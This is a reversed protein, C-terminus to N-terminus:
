VVSKRDEDNLAYWELNATGDGQFYMLRFPYIGAQPVYILFPSNALGRETGAPALADFFSLTVRSDPDLPDAGSQILYGDEENPFGTWDTNVAMTYMGPEPFELAGVIETAFSEIPSGFQANGPIGPFNSTVFDPDYFYGNQATPDTDFNIVGPWTFYGDSDVGGADDLNAANPGYDGALVAENYAITGEWAGADIQYTRIKFGKKTADVASKPMAADAPLNAFRAVVFSTANTYSAGENDEIVLSLTNTSGSPLPPNPVDYSIMTTEGSRAVATPTVSAGNFSLAISNTDALAGGVETVGVSFGFPSVSPNGITLGAEGEPPISQSDLEEPTLAGSHVKLRDLSGLFQLNGNWEAGISFLTQTRTFTLGGSYPLADGLVGDVYFSLQELPAEYVVAIHHWAEDDPIAAASAVDAIALTTVFVTRDSNVSFSVAGGPGGTYFFCMRGSPFGLVKVWAELTFSPEDPNFQIRTDPDNVTLYQGQEFHLATDGARGSPSDAEFAPPNDPNNPTGVLSNISDTARTGTGEDFEFDVLTTAATAATALTLAAAWLSLGLLKPIKNTM